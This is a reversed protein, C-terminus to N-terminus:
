MSGYQREYAKLDVKCKSIDSTLEEMDQNLQLIRKDRMIIEMRLNNVDDISSKSQLDMKEYDTILKRYSTMLNEREMDKVNISDELSQIYRECEQIEDRVQDRDTTAQELQSHLLQNEGTM